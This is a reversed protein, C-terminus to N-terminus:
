SHVVLPPARGLSPFAGVFAVFQFTCLTRRGVGKLSPSDFECEECDGPVYRSLLNATADRIGAAQSGLRTKSNTFADPFVNSDYRTFEGKGDNLLVAVPENTWLTTIVIDPYSDGNVDRSSLELGGAPAVLDITQPLHATLLFDISYHTTRSGGPGVQVSAFDPRGDSDFDAIAFQHSSQLRSPAVSRSPRGGANGVSTFGVLLFFLAFATHGATSAVM